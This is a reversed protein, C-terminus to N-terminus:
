EGALQYDCWVKNNTVLVIYGNEDSRWLLVTLDRGM